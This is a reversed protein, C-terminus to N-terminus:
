SSALALYRQHLRMVASNLEDLTGTNEIVDDARALRTSRSAQAALIQQALEATIGDRQLLRKIQLAEPVDIVLVRNIWDYGHASEVLLPIALISYASADRFVRARLEDRVRPHLIAELERRQQPSTFVRERMYKRDLEGTTMLANVGFVHVIDLLAPQGPAVLEHAILDADHVSM